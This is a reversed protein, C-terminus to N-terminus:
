LQDGMRGAHDVDLGVPQMDEAGHAMAELNDAARNAKIREIEARAQEPTDIQIGSRRRARDATLVKTLYALDVELDHALRALRSAPPISKGSLYLQITNSHLGLHAALADQTKIELTEMAKALLAAFSPVM